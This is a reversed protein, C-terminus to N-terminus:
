NKQPSFTGKKADEPRQGWNGCYGRCALVDVCAMSLRSMLNNGAKNKLRKTVCPIIPCM